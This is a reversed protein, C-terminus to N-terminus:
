PSEKLFPDLGDGPLPPYSTSGTGQLVDDPCQPVMLGRRLRGIHAALVPEVAGRQAACIGVVNGRGVLSPM